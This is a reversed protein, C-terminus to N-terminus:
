TAENSQDDDSSTPSAHSPIDYEMNWPYNCIYIWTIIKPVHNESSADIITRIAPKPTFVWSKHKGMKSSFVLLIM